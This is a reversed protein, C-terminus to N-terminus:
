PIVYVNGAEGLFTVGGGKGRWVGFEVFKIEEKSGASPSVSGASTCQSSGGLLLWSKVGRM